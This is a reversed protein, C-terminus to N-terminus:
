GEDPQSTPTVRILVSARQAFGLTSSRSKQDSAAVVTAAVVTATM